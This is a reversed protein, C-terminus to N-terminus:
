GAFELQFIKAFEFIKQADFDSAGGSANKNVLTFVSKVYKSIGALCTTTWGRRWHFLMKLERNIHTIGNRIRTGVTPQNAAQDVEGDGTWVDRESDVEEALEHISRPYRVHISSSSNESIKLACGGM